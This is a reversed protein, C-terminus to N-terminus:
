DRLDIVSALRPAEAGTTVTLLAGVMDPDFLRGAQAKIIQRADGPAM